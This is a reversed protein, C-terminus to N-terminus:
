RECWSPRRGQALSDPTADQFVVGRRRDVRFGRQVWACYVVNWEVRKYSWAM